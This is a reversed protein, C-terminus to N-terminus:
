LRIQLWKGRDIRAKLLLDRIFADLVFSIWAGTMAFRLSPFLENMPYCFLWTFAPRLLTVSILSCVAVYRVDGAGRLCGSYVVRGNQPIVGVIVVLFALTAGAIIAEERTFIMALQRHTLGIVLMLFLSTVVSLKRAIRVNAKALDYRKAGLAQGVLASGAAAIGDGLTFSLSTVQQVVQYAAMAATGIGAVLKTNLLFGIRLCASELMSSSGVRLLGSLTRNDFRPLSLRFRLYGDRRTAFLFAIVTGVGTGCVTAIAAGKVGLAPFGLHGNILCWNLFVNVLNASLNTVMTIRTKGIGRMSACICMTWYNLCFGLVIVRFYTTSPGLTDVNAGALKMLPGALFYGLLTMAIGLFTVLYMSQALVANASERDEEGRRRAILATTGVCLAQGLLLLIMRPQTTIGVAAIATSGLTGVMATDVSGIISILAGEVTSPWAINIMRRYLEKLPPTDEKFPIGDLGFIRQKLTM